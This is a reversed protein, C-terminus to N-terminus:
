VIRSDRYRHAIYAPIITNGAWTLDGRDTSGFKRGALYLANECAPLSDVEDRNFLDCAITEVGNNELENRSQPSSFRSVAIVRREAGAAQSARKIRRALSPGMKGGAGLIIISGSLRSIAEIDAANPTSLLSELQEENEVKTM